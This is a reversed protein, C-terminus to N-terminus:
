RLRKVRYFKHGEALTLRYGGMAGRTIIVNYPTKKPLRAKKGDKQVWVQGNALTIMFIKQPGFKIKVVEAQISNLREADAVKNKVAEGGFDAEPNNKQVIEPATSRVSGSSKQRSLQRAIGDYCALREPTAAIGACALIDEVPSASVATGSFLGVIMFFAIPLNKM